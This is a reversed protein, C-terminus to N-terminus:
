GCLVNTPIWQAHFAGHLHGASPFQLDVSGELTGGASGSGVFLYGSTAVEYDNVDPRFWAAADSNTSVPWTKGLIQDVTGTVYVRVYVGSPELSTIPDPALYIALAPGDAPGCTFSAAAHDFRGTLGIVGDSSCALVLAAILSFGTVRFVTIFGGMRNLQRAAYGADLSVFSALTHGVTRRTMTFRRKDAQSHNEHLDGTAITSSQM